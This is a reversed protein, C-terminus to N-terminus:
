RQTLTAFGGTLEALPLADMADRAAPADKVFADLFTVSLANVMNLADTQPTVERGTRCILNGLYHDAGDVVLLWNQGPQATDFSMRHLQWEPFFMPNVDWTGTTVLMPQDVQLWSQDNILGFMPGPPSIAVVARVRPDRGEIRHGSDPDISAAGIFQQATFAGFSHGAIAIREPDIRAALEADFREIEPLHDLINRITEVRGGILGENGLRLSNFIGRMMGGGDDHRPALVAYGHSVWHQLLADYQDTDSWNGHSFVILPYRGAETPYAARLRLTQTGATWSAAATFTPHLPGTQLNPIQALAAADAKLPQAPPLPIDEGCHALGLTSLLLLLRLSRKM